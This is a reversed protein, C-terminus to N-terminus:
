LRPTEIRCCFSRIMRFCFMEFFVLSSTDITEWWVFCKSSSWCSWVLFVFKAEFKWASEESNLLKMTSWTWKTFASHTILNTYQQNNSILCVIPVVQTLLLSNSHCEFNLRTLSFKAYFSSLLLPFLFDVFWMKGKAPSCTQMLDQHSSFIWERFPSLINFSKVSFLSSVLDPVLEHKWWALEAEKM